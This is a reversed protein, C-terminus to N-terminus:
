TKRERMGQSVLGLIKTEKRSRVIWIINREMKIAMAKMIMINTQKSVQNNFLLLRDQSIVLVHGNWRKWGRM